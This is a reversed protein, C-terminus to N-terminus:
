KGHSARLSEASFGIHAIEVVRGLHRGINELRLILRRSCLAFLSLTLNHLLIKPWLARRM